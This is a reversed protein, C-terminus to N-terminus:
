KCSHTAADRGRAEVPINEYADFDIRNDMCINEYPSVASPDGGGAVGRAQPKPLPVDRRSRSAMAPPALPATAAWQDAWPAEAPPLPPQYYYYPESPSAPYAPYAPSAESLSRPPATSDWGGGVWDGGAHSRGYEDSQARAPAASQPRSLYSPQQLMPPLPPQRAAPAAHLHGYGPASHLPYGVSSAGASEWPYILSSPSAAAVHPAAAAAVTSRSPPQQAFAERPPAPAHTPPYPVRPALTHFSSSPAGSRSGVSPFTAAPREDWRSTGPQVQSRGSPHVPRPRAAAGGADESVPRLPEQLWPLCTSRHPSLAASSCMSISKSVALFSSESASICHLLDAAM